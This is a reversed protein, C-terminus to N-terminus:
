EETQDDFGHALFAGLGELGPGVFAGFGALAMGIAEFGFGEVGADAGDLERDRLDPAAQLELPAAAPDPGTRCGLGQSRRYAPGACFGKLQTRCPPPPRRFARQARGALGSRLAPRFPRPIRLPIQSRPDLSGPLIPDARWM